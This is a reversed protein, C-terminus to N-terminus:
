NGLGISLHRAKAPAVASNTDLYNKANPISGYYVSQCSAIEIRGIM